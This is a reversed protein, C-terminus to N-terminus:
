NVGWNPCESQLKTIIGAKFSVELASVYGLVKRPKSNILFVKESIEEQTVLSFDTGKPFYRRLMKNANEIGGKEGPSHSHCFYTKIDLQEHFKNEIGNDETVSKAHINQAMEKQLVVHETASMGIVKKAQYLRSKREQFVSVGGTGNKCSVVTDAECHGYRNRKLVAGPRKEISVRNPIMERKKKDAKHHKVRYRGSYLHKCYQQGYESRLWEYIATKSAYFKLKNRKMYGAIEDPNWDSRLKKIIFTKLASNHEIKKWESKTDKRRTVAYIHANKANYKEKGGNMRIEYSVTNPSRCLAKAISRGSYKKTLLIEIEGREASSLVEFTNM